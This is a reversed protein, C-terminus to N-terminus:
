LRLFTRSFVIGGMEEVIITDYFCGIKLLPGKERGYIVAARYERTCHSASQFEILGHERHMTLKAFKSFISNAGLRM